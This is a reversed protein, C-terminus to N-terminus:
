RCFSGSELAARRFERPKFTAEKTEGSVGVAAFDVVCRTEAEVMKFRAVYRAGRRPTFTAPFICYRYGALGMTEVFSVLFSFPQGAQVKVSVEENTKLGSKDGVTLKGGSCDEAVKFTQVGVVQRTANKFTVAAADEGTPGVYPTTCGALALAVGAIGWVRFRM